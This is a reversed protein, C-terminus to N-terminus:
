LFIKMEGVAMEMKLRSSFASLLHNSLLHGQPTATDYRPSAVYLSGYPIFKAEGKSRKPAHLYSDALRLIHEKM